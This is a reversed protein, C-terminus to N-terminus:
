GKVGTSFNYLLDNMSKQLHKDVETAVAKPDHVGNVNITIAPLEATTRVRGGPAQREVQDASYKQMMGLAMTKERLETQLQGRQINYSAALEKTAPGKSAQDLAQLKMKTASIGNVLGAETQRAAWAADGQTVGGRQVQDLPVQLYDAMTQQVSRANMKARSEGIGVAGNYAKHVKAVYNPDSNGNYGRLAADQDGKNRKLFESYIRAGVDINSAPDSYDKLGYAKQNGRTIQMLGGAGTASVANPDGHSETMMIAHLLQPAVGYKAASSKILGSYKDSAWNGSGGGSLPTTGTAGPLGAAKGIEGAWAAWAQKSDVAGSFKDVSAGFLSLIQQWQAKSEANALAAADAANVQTQAAEQEKKALEQQQKEKNLQEPAKKVPADPDIGAGIMANRGELEGVKGFWHGITQLANIVHDAAEFKFESLNENLDGLFKNVHEAAEQAKAHDKVQDPTMAMAGISAGGRTMADTVKYDFGFQNGIGQAKGQNAHMWEATKSFAANPGMTTPDVGMTSFAFREKSQPEAYARQWAEGFKAMTDQTMERSVRGGSYQAMNRQINEMSLTGIGTKSSLDSMANMDKIGKAAVALTALVAAGAVSAAGGLAGFRSVIRAMPGDLGGFSNALGDLAGKLEGTLGKATKKGGEEVKGMQQNLKDLKTASDGVEVKYKLTFVDIEDAM